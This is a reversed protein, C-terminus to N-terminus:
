RATPSSALLVAPALYGNPDLVWGAEQAAAVVDESWQLRVRDDGEVVVLIEATGDEGAAAARVSRRAGPPVSVADLRNLEVTEMGDETEFTVEWTGTRAVLVEHRDIRHELLGEGETARLWAVSFSHPDHMPPVDRLQETLGYGIVLSLEARGGPLESCLFPRSQWTRSGPTVVRTAFQEETVVDLRDIESQPMPSILDIGEISGGDTTDILENDSTLFLGHKGAREIVEPGWIIGGTQDHGLVTLLVGDYTGHNTFGRFVWPPVSIIDGDGSRYTGQTGDAGWRLLYDGDFNIFVEATFHLHLSNTLGEPMGAAGMNFGHPEAINVFQDSNQSVGPGIFSYNDKQDSGPTRTDIFATRCPVWDSRLITRSRASTTTTNEETTTM